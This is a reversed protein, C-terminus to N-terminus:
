SESDDLKEFDLVSYYENASKNSEIVREVIGEEYIDTYLFEMVEVRGDESFGNEDKTYELVCDIAYFGVGLDDFCKRIDLLMESLREPSVTDDAIYVTLKGAKAGLENVNYYADLKLENTVLAYEPMDPVDKNDLSNFKLDGYGIHVNYPFSASDFIRDVTKRYESDLRKATNWGNTVNNEYYDYSLKGFGNILLTFTTDISSPSSVSAHYYGDKFSYSVDELVYDTDAYKDELYNKATNNAIAKSIPNGVLSNAFVCVGAILLIALAFASIKLIKKKM